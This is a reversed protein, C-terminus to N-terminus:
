ENNFPCPLKSNELRILEQVINTARKTTQAYGIHTTKDLHNKVIYQCTQLSVVGIIYGRSRYTIVNEMPAVHWGHKLKLYHAM